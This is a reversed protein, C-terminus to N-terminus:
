AVCKEDETEENDDISYNKLQNKVININIAALIAVKSPTWKNLLDDKKKGSWSKLM